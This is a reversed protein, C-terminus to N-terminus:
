TNRATTRAKAHRFNWLWRGARAKPPHGLGYATSTGGHLFASAVGAERLFEAARELAYGKGIAGLDLMVGEQGFRVTFEEGNLEVLPMAVKARAAELEARDPM